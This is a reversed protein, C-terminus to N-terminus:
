FKKSLKFKYDKKIQIIENFPDISTSISKFQSFSDKKNKHINSENEWIGSKDDFSCNNLFILILYLLFFRM